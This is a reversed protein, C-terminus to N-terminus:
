GRRKCRSRSPARRLPRLARVLLWGASALLLFTAGIGLAVYTVLRSDRVLWYLLALVSGIAIVYVAAYRLPPPELNRRLVRAPPVRPNSPINPLTRRRAVVSARAMRGRRM